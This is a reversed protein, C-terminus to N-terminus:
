MMDLYTKSTIVQEASAIPVNVINALLDSFEYM